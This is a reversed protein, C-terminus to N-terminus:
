KDPLIETLKYERLREPLFVAPAGPLSEVLRKFGNGDFRALPRWVKGTPALQGRLPSDLPANMDDCHIPILVRPHYADILKQLYARDNAVPNLPSTLLIDIQGVGTPELCAETLLRVGTCEVLFSLGYDMAYDRARLPPSLDHKLLQMGFGAVWQHPREALATVRVSGLDVVSGPHM